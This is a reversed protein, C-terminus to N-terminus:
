TEERSLTNHIRRFLGLLTAMEQQTLDTRRFINKVREPTPSPSGDRIFGSAQMIHDLYRDLQTYENTTPHPVAEPLPLSEAQMQYLEYLVLLVSQALNFSPYTETSPIRVIWRCLNLHESRLGNDEPGFVLATKPIPQKSLRNVWQPLLAFQAPNNGFRESFGVVQEMEAIAETFTHHVQMTELLPTAWLATVAAAEHDYERPAVLHLHEFGLNGMARAVAGINKSKAPEVLVIHFASQV